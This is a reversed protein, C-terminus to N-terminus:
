LGRPPIGFNNDKSFREKDRSLGYSFPRGSSLRRLVNPRKDLGGPHAGFSNDRTSTPTELASSQTSAPRRRFFSKKNNLGEAPVSHNSRRGSDDANRLPEVPLSRRRNSLPTRGNLDTAPALAHGNEMSNEAPDRSSSDHFARSLAPQLSNRRGGRPIATNTGESGGGRLKKGRKSCTSSPPRDAIIGADLGSVRVQEPSFTSQRPTFYTEAASSSDCGGETSQSEASALLDEDPPTQVAGSMTVDSAKSVTRSHVSPRSNSGSSSSAADHAVVLDDGDQEWDGTPPPSSAPETQTGCGATEPPSPCPVVDTHVAESKKGEIRRREDQATTQADEPEVELAPKASSGSAERLAQLMDADADLHPCEEPKQAPRPQMEVRVVDKSGTGDGPGAHYAKLIDPLEGDWLEVSRISFASGLISAFLREATMMLAFPEDEYVAIIVGYLVEGRVM